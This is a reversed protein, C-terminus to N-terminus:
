NVLLSYLKTIEMGSFLLSLFLVDYLRLKICSPIVLIGGLLKFVLGLEMNIHLLSFYGFIILLNGAYRLVDSKSLKM